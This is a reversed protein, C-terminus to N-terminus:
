REKWIKKLTMMENIFKIKGNERIILKAYLSKWSKTCEISRQKMKFMSMNVLFNYNKMNDDLGTDPEDEFYPYNRTKEHMLAIIEICEESRTIYKKALRDNGDRKILGLELLMMVFSIMENNEKKRSILNLDNDYM